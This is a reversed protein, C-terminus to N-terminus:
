AQSLRARDPLRKKLVLNKGTESVPHTKTGGRLPHTSTEDNQTGWFGQWVPGVLALFSSPQTGEWAGPGCGQLRQPPAPHGPGRPTAAPGLPSPPLLDARPGTLLCPAAGLAAPVPCPRGCPRENSLSAQCHSTHVNTEGKQLRPSPGPHLPRSVCVGGDCGGQGGLWPCSEQSTAGDGRRDWPRSLLLLASSAAAESLEPAAM